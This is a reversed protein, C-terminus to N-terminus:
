APGRRAKKYLRVPIGDILDTEGALTSEWGLYEVFAMPANDGHRPATRLVRTYGGNREAFRPALQEFLKDHADKTRLIARARVHAAQSAEKGMTIVKDAIRKLEKAKAVTTKIREHTILADVMNRLIAWRHKHGSGFKSGILPM